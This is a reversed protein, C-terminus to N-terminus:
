LKVLEFAYITITTIAYKSNIYAKISADFCPITVRIIKYLGDYRYTTSKTPQHHAATALGKACSCFDSCTCDNTGNNVLHISIYKSSRFVRIPTHEKYSTVLCNAGEKPSACYILTNYSDVSHEAHRLGAVVIANCGVTVNGSVSRQVNRDLFPFLCTLTQSCIFCLSFCSRRFVCVCVCM